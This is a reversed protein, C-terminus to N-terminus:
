FYTTHVALKRSQGIYWRLIRTKYVPSFVECGWRTDNFMVCNAVEQCFQADRSNSLGGKGYLCFKEATSVEGVRNATSSREDWKPSYYPQTFLFFVKLAGRNSLMVAYEAEERLLPCSQYEESVAIIIAKSNNMANRVADQRLLREDNVYLEREESNLCRREDGLIQPNNAAIAISGTEYLWVKARLSSSLKRQLM